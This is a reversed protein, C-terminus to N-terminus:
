WCTHEEEGGMSAGTEILTRAAQPPLPQPPRLFFLSIITAALQLATQHYKTPMPLSSIGTPAEPDAGAELLIRAVGEHGRAAAKHLPTWGDRDTAGPDAGRKILLRAVAECGWRAAKHLPTRGDGDVTNVDHHIEDLLWRVERVDDRAAAWHLDMGLAAPATVLCVLTFLTIKPSKKMIVEMELDAGSPLQSIENTHRRLM